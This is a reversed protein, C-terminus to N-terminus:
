IPETNDSKMWRFAVDFLVDLEGVKWNLKGPYNEGGNTMRSFGAAVVAGADVEEAWMIPPNDGEGYVKWPPPTGETSINKADTDGQVIINDSNPNQASAQSVSLLTIAPVILSFVILTSLLASNFKETRV